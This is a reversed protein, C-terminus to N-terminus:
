RSSEAHEAPADAWHGVLGTAVEVPNKEHALITVAGGEPIPIDESKLQQARQYTVGLITGVDRVTLGADTLQRALGAARATAYRELAAANRRSTRIDNLVTPIDRVGDVEDITWEVAIDDLDQGTAAAIYEAAMAPAETLTRAQTLGDLQPIAVMWWKGERTVIAEYTNM